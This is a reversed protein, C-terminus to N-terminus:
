KCFRKLTVRAPFIKRKRTMKRIIMTEMRLLVTKTEM